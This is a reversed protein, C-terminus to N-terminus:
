QRSLPAEKCKRYLSTDDPRDPTKYVQSPPPGYRNDMAEQFVQNAVALPKPDICVYGTQAACISTILSVGSPLKVVEYEQYSGKGADTIVFMAICSDRRSSYEVRNTDAIRKESAIMKRKDSRFQEALTLCHLRTEYDDSGQQKCATGSGAILMLWGVAVVTMIRMACRLM